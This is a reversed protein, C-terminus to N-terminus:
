DEWHLYPLVLLLYVYILLISVSIFDYYVELCEIPGKVKPELKVAEIIRDM